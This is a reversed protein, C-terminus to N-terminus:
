HAADCTYKTQEHCNRNSKVLPICCDLRLKSRISFFFSSCIKFIVKGTLTPLLETRQTLLYISQLFVLTMSSIGSASGEM